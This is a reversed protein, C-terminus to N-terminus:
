KQKLHKKSNGQSAMRGQVKTDQLITIVEEIEKSTIPRNVNEIEQQKLKPLKYIELLTDMEELNGSKNANLQKYYTKLISVSINKVAFM